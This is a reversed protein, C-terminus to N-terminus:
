DGGRGAGNPRDPVPRELDTRPNPTPDDDPTGEQIPPAAGCADSPLMRDLTSVVEHIDTPAALEREGSDAPRPIDLKQAIRELLAVTKSSEQEALLNVQLDLHARRESLRTLNNQSILVFLTLFIAELSVVLTLFSFPFPDIPRWGPVRGTNWAIWAAFWVVHFGVFWTTGAMQAVADSFRDVTTQRARDAAELQAVAEVNRALLPSAPAHGNPSGNRPTPSQPLRRGTAPRRRRQARSM